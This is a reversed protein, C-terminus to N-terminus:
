ATPKEGAHPDAGLIEVTGAGGDVRVRQGDALLATAGIVNMVAPLGYERAVIAGHSLRGGAECVIARAQALVPAWGADTYPVVLVTDADLRVTASVSKLVRVVGEVRGRSAAIGKLRGTAAITEPEATQEPIQMGYVVRPVRRRCQREYEARRSAVLARPEGALEGRALALIEDQTLFFIDGESELLGGSRWQRELATFTWRLYALLQDYIESVRARTRARPRCLASRLSDWPRRPQSREVPQRPIQVMALFLDRITEPHESWTPVAIDTGVESLYGFREIFRDLQAPIPTTQLAAKVQPLDGTDALNGLRSRAETAMAGLERVARVEATAETGLWDENVGLLARRLSLGLPALINFYTVLRLGVQIREARGVLQKPTLRDVNEDALTAMLPGLLDKDTRRFDGELSLDRGLLRLLGPLNALVSGPPPRSFRSGRYLFDLSEPPLGMRLFIDGLLTANFYAWGDLLTATEGFDIGVARKGLVITFIEGWVGCTLPRNISWTLPRITGPIVEAAITRTWVPQLATVPRAQLLWLREGDWTWEIDQPVGEFLGEVKLAAGQLAALIPHPIASSEVAGSARDIVAREPTRQGGVVAAAGGPLAEVVLVESGDVPDRTFVVGSWVGRIQPQVLVAMRGDAIKRDRRYATAAPIDYSARVRATAEIFGAPNTVDAVSLYQGAASNAVTDEGTASSRVIWPAEPSPAAIALLQEPTNESLLVWGGPVPLGAKKLKSLNAAKPGVAGPDLDLDLSPPKSSQRTLEMDDPVRLLAYGLWLSLLAAAGTTLLQGSQFYFAVPLAVLTALEARRRGTRGRYIAWPVLGVLTVLYTVVPAFVVLGWWANTAGAARGIWFRGAVLASLALLPWEPASSFTQAAFVAAIGRSAEVLAAGIGVVRGGHLFAAAVSVNGTGLNRLDKGTALRFLWGSLPVGGLVFAAILVLVSPLM